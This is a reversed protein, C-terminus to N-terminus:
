VQRRMFDTICSQTLLMLVLSSVFTTPPLLLFMVLFDLVGHLNFLDIVLEM